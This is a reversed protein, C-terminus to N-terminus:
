MSQSFSLASSSPPNHQFNNRYLFMRNAQFRNVSFAQLPMNLIVFIVVALFLVMLPTLTANSCSVVIPLRITRFGPHLSSFHFSFSICDSGYFPM